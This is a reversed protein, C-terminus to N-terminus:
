KIEETTETLLEHRIIGKKKAITMIVVVRGLETHWRDRDRKNKPPAEGWYEKAIEEIKDDLSTSM